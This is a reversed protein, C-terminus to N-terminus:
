SDDQDATDCVQKWDTLFGKRDKHVADLIRRKEARWDLGGDKKSRSLRSPTERHGEDM